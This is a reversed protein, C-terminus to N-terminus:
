FSKSEFMWKKLGDSNIEIKLDEGASIFENFEM